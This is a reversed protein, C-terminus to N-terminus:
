DKGLKLSGKSQSKSPASGKASYMENKLQQRQTKVIDNTVSPIVVKVFTDVNLTSESSTIPTFKGIFNKNVQRFEIQDLTALLKFYRMGYGCASPKKPGLPDYAVSSQM